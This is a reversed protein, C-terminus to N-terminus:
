VPIDGGGSDSPLGPRGDTGSTRRAAEFYSLEATRCDALYFVSVALQWVGALLTQVAVGMAAGWTPGPLGYAQLLYQANFYFNPLLALLNWGLYSLDLAFLQRKYGATQRRSLFIAGVAGQAPDALLNFLAFRYRYFAVAVPLLFPALLPLYRLYADGALMLLVSAALEVPLMWLLLLLGETLYLLIVKGALSFGDFLTLYEAREGRRVAMCYLAFGANLIFGTLMVLVSSFLSLAGGLFGNGDEPVLLSLLNIALVLGVYLAVMQRPPVQADRLLSRAEAKVQKRNIQEAM